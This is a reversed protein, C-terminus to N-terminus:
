KHGIYGLSELRMREEPSMVKATEKTGDFLPTESQWGRLVTDMLSAVDPVSDALNHNEGPDAALDYLEGPAATSGLYKRDNAYAAARNGKFRKGFRAVNAGNEFDEAYIPGRSTGLPVASIGPPLPYSLVDLVTAFVDIISVRENRVEGAHAGGPYKVLIPIRLGGEYLGVAHNVLQHEGFFEGHDSLVVLLTDDYLGDAKLGEVFRGVWYDAYAIAGDYQNVMQKSFEPTLGTGKTTYEFIFDNFPHLRLRDNYPIDPGDIRDFPPPAAYPYHPDMYNLFLFFPAAKNKSVWSLAKDTVSEADLYTQVYKGNLGRMRDVADLAYRFVPGGNPLYSLQRPLDYYYAFGQDLGFQRCLWAYNAAIGATNYGKASLCSALTLQSPALPVANTKTNQMTDADTAFTLAHAGHQRPYKGTFLSAHASLTWSDVSEGYPFFRCDAALKVLNPTTPYEYGCLSTHDARMTDIVVIVVNPKGAAMAADSLDISAEEGLPALPTQGIAYGMAALGAAQAVLAAALAAARARHGSFADLLVVTLAFLPFPGLALTLAAGPKWMFFSAAAAFCACAIASLAVAAHGANKARCITVAVIVAYLVGCAIAAYVNSFIGSGLPDSAALNGSMVLMNALLASGAVTAPLIASRARGKLVVILPLALACISLAAVVALTGWFLAVTLMIGATFYSGSFFGAYAEVAVVGCAAVAALAPGRLMARYVPTAGSVVPEPVPSPGVSM